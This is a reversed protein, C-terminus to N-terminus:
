IATPLLIRPKSTRKTRAASTAWVAAKVADARGKSAMRPGDAGPLTRLALVQGTLHETGDHRLADETLLNRLDQVATTTRGEGKTMRVGRLVPSEMLSSGVVTSGRYGSERLAAVAHELNPHDSVSLVAQKGTKWALAVSVGEGFWSEIAAADPVTFPPGAVLDEWAEETTVQEGRQALPQRLRWVNLYQALFGQMPDPDDAQPDVEGALAKAYKAAVTRARDESWYPSAARWVAPDAPDDQPRAGWLMLLTEGDHGALANTLRQRMLSTARRHATSTLLLQPSQRELMAPELGDDVVTPPVAWGEDVAASGVDFGFVADLSRVLWRHEGHQDVHNVEEQGVGRRVDWDPRAGAWAWAKRHIERAISLDKGCHMALQAEGFHEAGVAIRWLAAARLKVSKGVRRPGSELVNRWLLRGEADHELQRVLALRQWWRLSRVDPLHEEAWAICEPGYSGTALPHVPTM